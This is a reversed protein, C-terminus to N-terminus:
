KSIPKTMMSSHWRWATNVITSLDSHHPEWNLEKRAKTADAILSPSESISESALIYPVTTGTAKEVEALIELVSHGHGTGLNFIGNKQNKELFTLAQIHAQSLDCVHIYDRIATGDKTPLQHHYIKLPERSQAALIARPILHTEPNHSEGIEGDPDAGAANFFRFIVTKLQPFHDILQETIWKTNGYPNPPSKLADEQIKQDTPAYVAASSSYILKDIQHKAMARFLSLSGAVNTYYYNAPHQLSERLDILGALHIVADPRYQLFLQELDADNQLDGQIFPGFRVASLHGHSLNDFTIPEYGAQKLAKCVHSGIYGAGGTVVIKKM